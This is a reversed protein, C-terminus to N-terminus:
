RKVQSLINSLTSIIRYSETLESISFAASGHGVTDVRFQEDMLKKQLTLLTADKDLAATKLESITALAKHLHERLANVENKRLKKAKATIM